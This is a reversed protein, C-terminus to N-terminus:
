HGDILHFFIKGTIDQQHFCIFGTINRHHISFTVNDPILIHFLCYTHCIKIFFRICDGADYTSIRFLIIGAIFDYHHIQRPFSQQILYKIFEISVMIDAAHRVPVQDQNIISRLCKIQCFTSPTFFLCHPSVAIRDEIHFTILEFLPVTEAFQMRRIIRINHFHYRNGAYQLIRYPIFVIPQMGVRNIKIGFTINIHREVPSTLQPLYLSLRPFNQIPNTFITIDIHRRSTICVTHM